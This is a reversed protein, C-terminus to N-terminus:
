RRKPRFALWLGLAALVLSLLLWLLISSTSPPPGFPNSDDALQAGAPDLLALLEVLALLAAFALLSIGLLRRPWGM